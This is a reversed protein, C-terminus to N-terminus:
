ALVLLIWLKSLAWVARIAREFMIDLPPFLVIPRPCSALLAFALAFAVFTSTFAISLGSATSAASVTPSAPLGTEVLPYGGAPHGGGGEM